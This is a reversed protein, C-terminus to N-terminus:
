KVEHLSDLDALEGDKFLTADFSYVPFPGDTKVPALGPHGNKLFADLGPRRCDNVFHTVGYYRAIAFIVKPAAYPLGVGRVTPPMYFLLEWPNRTMVVANDAIGAKQLAQAMTCYKPYYDKEFVQVNMKARQWDSIRVHYRQALAGATVCLVLAGVWSLHRFWIRTRDIHQRLLVPSAWRLLLGAGELVTQCSLCGLVALFPMLLLTFRPEVSWLCIIFGAELLIFLILATGGGLATKVSNSTLRLPKLWSQRRITSVLLWAPWVLMAALGWALGALHLGTLWPSPLHPADKRRDIYGPRFFLQAKKGYSGLAAWDEFKSDTGILSIRLFVELNRRSANRWADHDQFRDNMKPLNRDWYVAYFGQDWNKEIGFFSSVYNQTSHIPSGYHWWMNIWWPMILLIGIVMGAYFWRSRFIVTGCLITALVPLAALLILQSGKTYFAMALFVGALLLWSPRRRCSMMVAMFGTLLAAVLVDSLVRLSESFMLPNLLMLAAVALAAWVRRCCSLALWAALLPLLLAGIGACVIRANAADTGAWRFAPALFFALMPPWHDDYRWIDSPGSRFFVSVYPIKLSWNNVLGRAQLAYAASDAHGIDHNRQVMPMRMSFALWGMYLVTAYLLIQALPSPWGGRARVLWQWIRTFSVNSVADFFSGPIQIKM